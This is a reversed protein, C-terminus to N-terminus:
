AFDKTASVSQVHSFHPSWHQSIQNLVVAAQAASREPDVASTATRAVPSPRGLMPPILILAMLAVNVLVAVGILILVPTVPV